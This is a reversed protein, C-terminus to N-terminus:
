AGGNGRQNAGIAAGDFPDSRGAINGILVRDRFHLRAHGQDRGSLSRLPDPQQFM